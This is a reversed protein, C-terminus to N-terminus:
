MIEIFLGANKISWYEIDNEEFHINRDIMNEEDDYLAPFTTLMNPSSVPVDTSPTPTFLFLPDHIMVAFRKLSSLQQYDLPNTTFLYTTGFLPHNLPQYFLNMDQNNEDDNNLVNDYNGNEDEQCLYLITPSIVYSRPSDIRHNKIYKLSDHELFLDYITKDISKELISKKELIEDIITWKYKINEQNEPLDTEPLDTEPLDTCDIFGIYETVLPLYGKYRTQWFEITDFSFFPSCTKQFQSQLISPHDPNPDSTAEPNPDSTAELIPEPNKSFLFPFFLELVSKNQIESSSSEGGKQLVNKLLESQADELERHEPEGHDPEGHDLEGHEPEGHEPEGHDLEGHDLEGHDLEGHDLEGHDLEGHDLEGHDLEVAVPEVAVPEVAVPEVDVPEMAVPEVAVPEVAVPEVDVPEVAVPEVAVPEVVVPEMAVPEVSAVETNGILSLSPFHYTSHDLSVMLFELFPEELNDNIRYLCVRTDLSKTMDLVPDIQMLEDDELYSYKNKPEKYEELSYSEKGKITPIEEPNEVIIKETAKHLSSPMFKSRIEKKIKRQSISM